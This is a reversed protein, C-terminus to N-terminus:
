GHRHRPPGITVEVGAMSLADYLAGTLEDPTPRMGNSKRHLDEVVPWAIARFAALDIDMQGNATRIWEQLCRPLAEPPEQAFTARM